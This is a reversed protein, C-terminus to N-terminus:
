TPCACRSWVHSRLLRELAATAEKQTDSRVRSYRQLTIAM